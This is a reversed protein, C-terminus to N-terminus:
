GKNCKSFISHHLRFFDRTNGLRSEIGHGLFQVLDVFYYSTKNVFVDEHARLTGKKKQALM